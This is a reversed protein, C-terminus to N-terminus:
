RVYALEDMSFPKFVNMEPHKSSWNQNNEIRKENNNDDNCASTETEKEKSMFPALEWEISIRM